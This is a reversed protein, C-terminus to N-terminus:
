IALLRSVNSVFTYPTYSMTGHETVYGPNEVRERLGRPKVSALKHSRLSIPMSNGKRFNRPFGALRLFTGIIAVLKM